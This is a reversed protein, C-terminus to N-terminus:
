WAEASAGISVSCIAKARTYVSNTRGRGWLQLCMETPLRLRYSETPSCSRVRVKECPKSPSDPRSATPGLAATMTIRRPPSLARVSEGHVGAYPSRTYAHRAHMTGPSTPQVRSPERSKSSPAGYLNTEIVTCRSHHRNFSIRNRKVIWRTDPHRQM